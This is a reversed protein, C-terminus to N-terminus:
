EKYKNRQYDTLHKGLKAKRLVKNWDRLDQGTLPTGTYINEKKSCRKAYLQVREYQGEVLLEKRM